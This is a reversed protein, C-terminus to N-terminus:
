DALVAAHASLEITIGERLLGTPLTGLSEGNITLAYRDELGDLILRVPHDPADSQLRLTLGDATFDADLVAPGGLSIVEAFDAQIYLSGFTHQLASLVVAQRADPLAYLAALGRAAYETNGTLRFAHLCLVPMWAAVEQWHPGSGFAGLPYADSTVITHQHLCLRDLWVLGEELQAWEGADAQQLCHEVLAAIGEPAGEWQFPHWEITAPPAPLPPLTGTVPAVTSPVCGAIGERCGLWRVVQQFGREPLARTDLCLATQLSFQEGCEAPAQADPWIGYTFIPHADLHMQMGRSELNSEDSDPVLAAFINADQLFIVPNDALANGCLLHRPWSVEPFESLGLLQWRQIFYGCARAVNGHAVLHQSFWPGSSMLLITLTLKMEGAQGHLAVGTTAGARIVPDFAFFYGEQPPGSVEQWCIDAGGLTLATVGWDGDDEQAEVAVALSHGDQLVRLRLLGNECIVSGIELSRREPTSM